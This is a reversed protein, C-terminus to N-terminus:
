AKLRLEWLASLIRATNAQLIACLQMIQKESLKDLNQESDLCLAIEPKANEGLAIPIGIFSRAKRKFNRVITEDMDWTNVLERLYRDPERIPCPLKHCVVIKNTKFATGIPGQPPEFQHTTNSRETFHSQEDRMYRLDSCVLRKRVKSDPMWVSVRLKVIEPQYDSDLDKLANCFGEEISKLELRIQERILQLFALRKPPDDKKAGVVRVNISDRRRRSFVEIPNGDPWVGSPAKNHDDHWDSHYKDTIVIHSEDGISALRQVIRRASGIVEYGDNRFKAVTFDGQHVGIRVDFGETKMHKIIDKAVDIWYARNMRHINGRCALLLGDGLGQCFFDTGKLSKLQKSKSPFSWLKELAVEQEDLTLDSYDVIEVAVLYGNDAAHFEPDIPTVATSGVKDPIDSEISEVLEAHPASKAVQDLIKVMLEDRENVKLRNWQKRKNAFELDKLGLLATEDCKSIAIPVILAGKEVKNKRLTPWEVTRIFDSNVFEPGVLLIAATAREFQSRITADWETGATMSQDYFFTLKGARQANKCHSVVKKLISKITDEKSAYSIVLHPLPDTNSLTSM